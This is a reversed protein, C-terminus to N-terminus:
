RQSQWAQSAGRYSPHEIDVGYLIVDRNCGVAREAIGLM